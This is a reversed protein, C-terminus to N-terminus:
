VIIYGAQVVKENIATSSYVCPLWLGICKRMFTLMSMSPSDEEAHFNGSDGDAVGASNENLNESEDDGDMILLELLKCLTIEFCCVVCIKLKNGVLM